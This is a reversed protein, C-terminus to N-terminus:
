APNFLGKIIGHIRVASWMVYRKWRTVGLVELSELFIADVERRPRSGTRILYDHVVCAKATRDFNSFIFRAFRPITAFDTVFGAPVTIVDDSGKHGVYYRFPVVLEALGAGDRERQTILVLLPSTFSSM